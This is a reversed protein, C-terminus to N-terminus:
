ENTPAPALLQSVGRAGALSWLHLEDRLSVLVDEFTSAISRHQKEGAYLYILGPNLDAEDCFLCPYPQRFTGKVRKIKIYSHYYRSFSLNM